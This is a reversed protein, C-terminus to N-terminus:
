TVIMQGAGSADLGKGKPVDFVWGRAQDGYLTREFRELETRISTLCRHFLFLCSAYM